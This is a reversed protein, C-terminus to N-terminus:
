RLAALLRPLRPVAAGAKVNSLISRDKYIFIYLSGDLLRIGLGEQKSNAQKGMNFSSAVSSFTHVLALHGKKIL